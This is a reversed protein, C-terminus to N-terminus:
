ALIKVHPGCIVVVGAHQKAGANLKRSTSSDPWRSSIMSFVPSSPDSRSLAREERTSGNPASAASRKDRQRGSLRRPFRGVPGAYREVFAAIVFDEFMAAGGTRDPIRDGSRCPTNPRIQVALRNDFRPRNIMPTPAAHDIVSIVADASMTANTCVESISGTASIEDGAPAM